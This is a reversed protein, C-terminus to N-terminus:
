TSETFTVVGAHLQRVPKRNRTKIIKQKGLQPHDREEFVLTEVWGEDPDFAVVLDMLKGDLYVKDISKARESGAEYIM